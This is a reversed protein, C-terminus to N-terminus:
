SRENAGHPHGKDFPTILYRHTAVSNFEKRMQNVTAMNDLYSPLLKEVIQYTLTNVQIRECMTMNRHLLPRIMWDIQDRIYDVSFPDIEKTVPDGLKMDRIAVWDCNNKTNM